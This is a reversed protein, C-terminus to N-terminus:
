SIDANKNRLRELRQAKEAEFEEISNFGQVEEEKDQSEECLMKYISQPPKANPVEAATSRSWKLWNVADYILFLVRESTTYKSDTLKLIVRSERRLGLALTAIYLADFRRYDYIRYYEALDCILEDECLAIM